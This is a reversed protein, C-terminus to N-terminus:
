KRILRDTLDITKNALDIGGKVYEVRLGNEKM